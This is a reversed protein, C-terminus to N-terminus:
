RRGIRVQAINRRRYNNNREDIYLQVSIYHGSDSKWCKEEKEERERRLMEM